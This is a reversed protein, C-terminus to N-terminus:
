SPTPRFLPSDALGIDLPHVALDSWLDNVKDEYCILRVRDQLQLAPKLIKYVMLKSTRRSGRGPYSALRGNPRGRVADTLAGGLSYIEDAYRFVTQGADTLLM